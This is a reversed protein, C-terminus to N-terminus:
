LIGEAENELRSDVANQAGRIFEVRGEEDIAKFQDIVVKLYLPLKEPENWQAVLSLAADYGKEYWGKM